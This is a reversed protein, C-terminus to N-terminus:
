VISFLAADIRENKCKPCRGPRTLRKRDKFTFDCSMCRFPDVHLKKKQSKVSRNIHELHEYVEKERIRLEQSIDRASLANQELLSILQQRITKM